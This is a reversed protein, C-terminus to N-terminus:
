TQDFNAWHNQLLLRSRSFPVSPRVSLRRIFSVQAKLEPSSFLVSVVIFIFLLDVPKLPWRFVLSDVIVKLLAGIQIDVPWDSFLYLKVIDYMMLFWDIM